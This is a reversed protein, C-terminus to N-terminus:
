AHVLSPLPPCATPTSFPRFIAKLSSVNIKRSQSYARREERRAIRVEEAAAKERAERYERPTLKRRSPAASGSRASGLSRVAPNSASRGSPVSWPQAQPSAARTSRANKPFKSRGAISTPSSANAKMAAQGYRSARSGSASRSSTSSRDKTDYGSLSRPTSKSQTKAKSGSSVRAALVRRTPLPVHLVGFPLM